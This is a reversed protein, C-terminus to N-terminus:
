EDAKKRSIRDRSCYLSTHQLADSDREIVAKILMENKYRGFLLDHYNYCTKGYFKFHIFRIRDDIVPIFKKDVSASQGSDSFVLLCLPREKKLSKPFRIEKIYGFIDQRKIVTSSIFYKNEIATLDM